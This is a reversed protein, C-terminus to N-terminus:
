SNQFGLSWSSNRSRYYDCRSPGPGARAAAAARVSLCSILRESLNLWPRRVSEFLVQVLPGPLPFRSTESESSWGDRHSSRQTRCVLSQAVTCRAPWRQTHRREPVWQPPQCLRHARRRQLMLQLRTSNRAPFGSLGTPPRPGAHRVRFSIRLGLWATAPAAPLM